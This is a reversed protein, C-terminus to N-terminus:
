CCYDSKPVPNSNPMAAGFPLKFKDPNSHGIRDREISEASDAQSGSSMSSVAPNPLIVLICISLNFM